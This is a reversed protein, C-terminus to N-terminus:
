FRPKQASEPSKIKLFWHIHVIGQIWMVSSTLLYVRHLKYFYTENILKHTETDLFTDMYSHQLFLGLLLFAMSALNIVILKWLKFPLASKYAFLYTLNVALVVVLIINLKVTVHQTIFGMLVHNGLVNMGTSVVFAAYFTFGGWWLFFCLGSLFYFLRQLKNRM